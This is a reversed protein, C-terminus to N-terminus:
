GIPRPIARAMATTGHCPWCYQMYADKGSNLTEASVEKGALKMPATFQEACGVASLPLVALIRFRGHM